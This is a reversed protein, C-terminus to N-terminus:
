SKRSVIGGIYYEIVALRIGCNLVIHTEAVVYESVCWVDEYRERACLATTKEEKMQSRM